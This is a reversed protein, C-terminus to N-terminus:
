EAGPPGQDLGGGAISDLRDGLTGQAQLAGWLEAAPAPGAGGPGGPLHSRVRLLGAAADVDVVANCGAAMAQAAAYSSCTTLHQTSMSPMCLPHIGYCLDHTCMRLCCTPRCDHGSRRVVGCWGRYVHGYGGLDRQQMPEMGACAHMCMSCAPAPWMRVQKLRKECEECQKELVKATAEAVLVGGSAQKGAEGPQQEAEVAAALASSAAEQAEKITKRLRVVSWAAETYDGTLYPMLTPSRHGQKGRRVGAHGVSGGGCLIWPNQWGRCSALAPRM